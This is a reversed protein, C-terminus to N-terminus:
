PKCALAPNYPQNHKLMGYIIHVLKRMLAGVIAKPPLGKKKLREVFPKLDTNFRKASLAPMYLAKRLHSSGFKSMRTKGKFKGSQRQRPTVGIYAALQKASEFLALEPLYAIIKYASLRGIGKIQTLQEVIKNFAKNENVLREIKEELSAIQKELRKILQKFSQKAAASQLTSQQNKLQVLQEKLTDLLQVLERITKQAKSRPKFTRPKMAKAYQAILCADLTDNKNRALVMRAYNKIVYPNVVSVCFGAHYLHEALPESYAGTAELCIRAHQTNKNLWTLLDKFGTKNNQFVKTKKKGEEKLLVLDFKAKAVDIGIFDYENM